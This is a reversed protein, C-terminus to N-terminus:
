LALQALTLVQTQYGAGLLTSHCVHTVRAKPPSLCVSAQLESSLWDRWHTLWPNLLLGQRWVYPTSNSLFVDHVESRRVHCAHMRTCVCVCICSHSPLSHEQQTQQLPWIDCGKLSVHVSPLMRWCRSQERTSKGTHPTNPAESLSLTHQRATNCFLM